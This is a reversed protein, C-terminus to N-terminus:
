RSANETSTGSSANRATAVLHLDERNSPPSAAHEELPKPCGAPLRSVSVGALTAVVLAGLVIFPLAEIVISAFVGRFHGRDLPRPEPRASRAIASEVAWYAAGLAWVPM